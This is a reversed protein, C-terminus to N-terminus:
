DWPENRFVMTSSLHREGSTDAQNLSLLSTMMPWKYVVNVVIINSAGGANFESDDEGRLNGDDDYLTDVSEAAEFSDYPQVEMYLRDMDCMFTPMFDCISQRFESQTIAGDDAQGTKIMRSASIVANDLMRNVLHALGVEFIGFSLAFFPMAVVAFEIATVGSRDKVFSKVTRRNSRWFRWKIRRM